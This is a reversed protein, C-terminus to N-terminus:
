NKPNQQEEQNDKPMETNIISPINYWEKRLAIITTIMATIEGPTAEYMIAEATIPADKGDKAYAAIIAAISLKLYDDLGAEPKRYIVHGEDNTLPNGEEDLEMQPSFVESSKGSLREYGTEAAACYIMDIQQGCITITEKKM